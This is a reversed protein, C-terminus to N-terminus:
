KLKLKKKIDLILSEARDPKPNYRLLWFIATRFSTWCYYLKIREKLRINYKIKASKCYTEIFVDIM